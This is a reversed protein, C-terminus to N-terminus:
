AFVRKGFLVMGILMNLILAAKPLTNDVFSVASDAVGTDLDSNLFGQLFIDMTDYVWIMVLNVLFWVILFVPHSPLFVALALSVLAFLVFLASYSNNFINANNTWSANLKDYTQEPVEDQVEPLIAKLTFDVTLLTIILLFAGVMIYVLDSFAM